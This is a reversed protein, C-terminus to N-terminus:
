VKSFLACISQKWFFVSLRTRDTIPRFSAAVMVSGTGLKKHKDLGFVGDPPVLSRASFIRLLAFKPTLAICNDADTNTINGGVSFTEEHPTLLSVACLRITRCSIFQEHGPLYIIEAYAQHSQSFLCSVNTVIDSAIASIRVM